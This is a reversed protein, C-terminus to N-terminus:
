LDEASRKTTVQHHSAVVAEPPLAPSGSFTGGIARKDNRREDAGKPALADLIKPHEAGSPTAM